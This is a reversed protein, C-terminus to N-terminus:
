HGGNARPHMVSIAYHLNLRAGDWNPRLTTADIQAGAAASQARLLAESDGALEPARPVQPIVYGCPHRFELEGDA